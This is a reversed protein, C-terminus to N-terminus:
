VRKAASKEERRLIYQELDMGKESAREKYQALKAPPINEWMVKPKLEEGNAVADTYEPFTMDQKTDDEVKLPEALQIYDPEVKSAKGSKDPKGRAARAAAKAAEKVEAVASKEKRAIEKKVKRAELKEKIRARRADRTANRESEKQRAVAKRADYEAKEEPGMNAIEIKRQEKKEHKRARRAEKVAKQEAAAQAVAANREDHKAKKGARKEKAVATELELDEPPMQSMVYARAARKLERKTRERDYKQAKYSQKGTKPTKPTLLGATEFIQEMEPLDSTGTLPLANAGTAGQDPYPDNTPRAPLLGRSTAAAVYESIQRDITKRVQIAKFERPNLQELKDGERERKERLKEKKEIKRRARVEKPREKHGPGDVSDRKRKRSMRAPPEEEVEESSTDSDSEAEHEPSIRRRKRSSKDEESTVPTNTGATTIPTPLFNDGISGEIRQGKVFNAYLGGRHVGHKQVQALASEQGTGLNRLGEDFARLWWQDSVSTHKNLGVGLVDVKKSVLLPRKIGRDTHDLSHGEGRWGQKRLYASADM